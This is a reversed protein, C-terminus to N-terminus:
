CGNLVLSSYIGGQDVSTGVGWPSRRAVAVGALTTDELGVAPAAIREWVDGDWHLVLSRFTQIPDTARGVAWVDDPGAAAVDTLQARGPIDPLSSPRWTRGDWRLILAREHDPGPVTWGVAWAEAPGVVAISSLLHDGRGPNPTWVVRWAGGEVRMALTRHRGGAAVSWGVAWAEGPGAADIGRLTADADLPSPTDQTAWSVGDWRLIRTTWRRGDLARGAAWVADQSSAAVGFLETTGVAPVDVATWAAGDWRQVMPAEARLWGVAWADGRSVLAVDHFGANADAILEVPASDWRRGNWNNAFPTATGGVYRAGVVWVDDRGLADVAM